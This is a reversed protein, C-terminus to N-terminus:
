FCNNQCCVKLRELLEAHEQECANEESEHQQRKKAMKANLLELKSQFIQIDRNLEKTTSESQELEYDVKLSKQKIISLETFSFHKLLNRLCCVQTLRYTEPYDSNSENPCKEKSGSKCFSIAVYDM